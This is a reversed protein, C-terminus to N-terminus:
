ALRYPEYGLREMVDALATQIIDVDSTSIHDRWDKTSPVIEGWLHPDGRWRDLDPNPEEVAEPEFPEQLFNCIDSFVTAPHRVFSEYRVMLLNRHHASWTLVRGVSARYTECFDLPTLRGAWDADPDGAARRRYSSFVDVPHRYIYLFRGHPFTRWLRHLNATNTPTKEVLRLCGRARAAHFFYSRLVLHNLNAYWLVGSRDRFVLNPPLLLLNILRIGRISRLFASYSEEDNLMYRILPEPYTRSFMFTRRLLSFIDTEVLSTKLPRFSSQKQLTRYLISTGSRAEGVIFVPNSAKMQSSITVLRRM